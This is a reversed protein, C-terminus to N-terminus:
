FQGCQRQLAPIRGAHGHRIQLHCRPLRARFCLANARNRSPLLGKGPALFQPLRGSRRRGLQLDANARSARRRPVHLVRIRAAFRTGRDANRQEGHGNRPQLIPRPLRKPRLPAPLRQGRQRDHVPLFDGTEPWNQRQGFGGANPLSVAVAPCPGFIPNPATAAVTYQGPPVGIVFHGDTASYRVHTSTGDSATVAIGAAPKEGADLQCNGNLDHWIKGRILNQQAVPALTKHIPRNQFGAYLYQQDDLYLCNMYNSNQVDQILVQWTEGDDESVNIGDGAREYLKEEADALLPFHYIPGSKQQFTQGNDKSVFSGSNGNQQYGSIWIHGKPSLYLNNVDIFDPFVRTTSDAPADYFYVGVFDAIYFSGDPKFVPNFYNPFFNNNTNILLWTNGNDDSKLLDGYLYDFAYLRGTPAVDITNFGSQGNGWQSPLNPLTDWASAGALRRFLRQGAIGFVYGNPSVVMRNVSLLSSDFPSQINMEKWTKGDDTSIQYGPKDCATVMLNDSKDKQIKTVTPSKFRDILNTWTAGQDTSRQFSQSECNPQTFFISGNAELAVGGGYTYQFNPNETWTVGDDDSQFVGEDTVAWIQQNELFLFQQINPQSFPASLKLIMGTWNAGGDTSRFYAKDSSYETAYFATGTPPNFGLNAVSTSLGQVASFTGDWKFRYLHYSAGLTIVLLNQDANGIALQASHAWISAGGIFTFTEGDDTSRRVYGGSDFAWIIGSADITVCQFTNAANLQQWQNTAPNYKFLYNALAFVDGDPQTFFQSVGYTYNSGHLNM